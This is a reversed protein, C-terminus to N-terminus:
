SGVNTVLRAVAQQTHEEVPAKVLAYTDDDVDGATIAPCLLLQGFLIVVVWWRCWQPPATAM